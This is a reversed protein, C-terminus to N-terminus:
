DVSFKYVCGNDYGCVISNDSVCKISVILDDYCDCCTREGAKCVRCKTCKRGQFRGYEDCYQCGEFCKCECECQLRSSNICEGFHTSQKNIDWVRIINDFDCSVLMDESVKEICSISSKGQDLLADSLTSLDGSENLTKLQKINIEGKIDKSVGWLVVETFMHIGSVICIINDSFKYLSRMIYMNNYYISRVCDGFKNSNIDVNWLRITGDVSCSLLIDRQILLISTVPESHNELRKIIKGSEKDIDMVCITNDDSCSVICKDSISEIKNVRDRHVHVGNNYKGFTSSDPNIDWWCIIGNQTGSILTNNSLLKCCSTRHYENPNELMKITDYKNTKTNHKLLNYKNSSPSWIGLVDPSIYEVNMNTHYFERFVRVNRNVSGDSWKSFYGQVIKILEEPFETDSLLVQGLVSLFNDVSGTMHKSLVNSTM